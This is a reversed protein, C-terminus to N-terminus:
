TDQHSNGNQTEITRSPLEGLAMRYFHSGPTLGLNKLIDGTIKPETTLNIRLTHPNESAIRAPKPQGNGQYGAYGAPKLYYRNCRHKGRREDLTLEGLRVLNNICGQVKRVSLGARSALKPVSVEAYGKDKNTHDAILLTILLDHSKAQSHNLVMLISTVSM